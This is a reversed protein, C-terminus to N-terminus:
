AGSELVTVVDVIRELRRRTLPKRTLAKRKRPRGAATSRRTSGSARQPQLVEPQGGDEASRASRGCPRVRTVPRAPDPFVVVSAAMASSILTEVRRHVHEGELVRDLDQDGLLSRDDGLPLDDGVDLREARRQPGRHALVGVHDDDALHAVLLRDPGRQDGGLGAVVDDRRQVGRIRRGAHVADEVQERRLLLLLDADRQRGHEVADDALPQDRPGVAAPRTAAVSIATLVPRTASAMASGAFVPLM